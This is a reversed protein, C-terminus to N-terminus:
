QTICNLYVYLDPFFSLKGRVATQMKTFREIDVIAVYERDRIDKKIFFILM